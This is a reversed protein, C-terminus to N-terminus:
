ERRKPTPSAFDSPLADPAVSGVRGLGLREAETERSTDIGTRQEWPVPDGPAPSESEPVVAPQGSSDTVTVTPTTVEGPADPQTPQEGPPVAGPTNAAVAAALADGEADLTATINNLRQRVADLDQGAAAERVQDALGQILVTASQMVDTQESVNQELRALAAQMEHLQTSMTSDRRELLGLLRDFRALLEPSVHHVHHLQVRV